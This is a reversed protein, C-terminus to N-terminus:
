IIALILRRALGHSMFSGPILIPFGISGRDDTVGIRYNVLVREGLNRTARFLTVEVGALPDGDGDFVRGSMTGARIFRLELGERTEGEGLSILDGVERARNAGYLAAGVENRAARVAYKGQPLGEFRFRGSGDTRTTAWTPPTGQLTLTVIAKRVPDGNSAEIVTGSVVGNGRGQGFALASVM